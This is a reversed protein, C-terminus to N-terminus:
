KWNQAIAQADTSADGVGPDEALISWDVPIIM